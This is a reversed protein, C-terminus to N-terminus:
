KHVILTSPIIEWDGAPLRSSRVLAEVRYCGSVAVGTVHLDVQGAGSPVQIPDAPAPLVKGVIAPSHRYLPYAQACTRGGSPLPFRNSIQWAAEIGTGTRSPGFRVTVTVAGSRPVGVTATAAPAKALLLRQEAAYRVRAQAAPKEVARSAAPTKPASRTRTSGPGGGFAFFGAAALAVVLVVSGGVLVSPRVKSFYRMM